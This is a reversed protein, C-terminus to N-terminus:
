RFFTNNPDAAQNLRAAKRSARWAVGSAARAVALYLRRKQISFWSQREKGELGSVRWYTNADGSFEDSPSSTYYYLAVSNRQGRGTVPKSFGHVSQDDTQFIVCRALSPLVEKVVCDEKKDWLELSGGNSPEWDPNLYLLLNLRRFFNPVATTHFDTHPVLYGGEFTTHLGGGGLQSDALLNGIGTLRELWNLVEGCNLEMVVRDLPAPITEVLSCSSKLRQFQHDINDWGAWHSGPFANALELECGSVLLDDLVIHRYPKASAFSIADQDVRHMLKRVNVYQLM